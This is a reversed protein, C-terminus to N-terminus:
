RDSQNEKDGMADRLNDHLKVAYFAYRAPIEEKDSARSLEDILWQIALFSIEYAHIAKADEDKEILLSAMDFDDQINAVMRAETLNLGRGVTQGNPQQQPERRRILWNVIMREGDSLEINM